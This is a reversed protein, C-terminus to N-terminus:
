NGIVEDIGMDKKLSGFSVASSIKNTLTYM